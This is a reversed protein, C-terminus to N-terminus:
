LEVIHWWKEEYMRLSLANLIKNLPLWKEFIDFINHENRLVYFLPILGRTSYIKNQQEFSYFVAYKKSLPISHNWQSHVWFTWHPFNSDRLSLSNFIIKFSTKNKHNMLSNKSTECFNTNNKVTIYNCLFQHIFWPFHSKHIINIM